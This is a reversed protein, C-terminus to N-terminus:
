ILEKMKQLGLQFYSEENDKQARKDIPLGLRNLENAVILLRINLLENKNVVWDTIFKTLNSM